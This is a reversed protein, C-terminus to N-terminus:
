AGTEANDDEEEVEDDNSAEVLDEAGDTDSEV